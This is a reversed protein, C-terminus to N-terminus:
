PGIPRFLKALKIPAKLPHVTAYMLGKILSYLLRVINRVARAPLKALFLALKKYWDGEGNSDLWKNFETLPAFKAELSRGLSDIKNQIFLNPMKEDLKNECNNLHSIARENWNHTAQALPTIFRHLHHVLKEGQHQINHIVSPISFTPKSSSISNM